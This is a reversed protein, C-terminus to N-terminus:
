KWKFRKNFIYLVNGIPSTTFTFIRYYDDKTKISFWIWNTVKSTLKNNIMLQLNLKM